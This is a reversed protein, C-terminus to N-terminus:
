SGMRVPGPRHRMAKLRGHTVWWASNNAKLRGLGTAENYEVLRWWTWGASLSYAYEDGVRIPPHSDDATV